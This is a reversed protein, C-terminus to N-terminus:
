IRIRTGEFLPKKNSAPILIKEDACIGEVAAENESRALVTLTKFRARSGNEVWVGTKRNRTVLVGLPIKLVNELTRLAIRVEAQENLYFSEPTKAFAVNVIREQTVPDSVAEIRAVYGELPQEQRSRLIIKAKQGVRIEGSIREDIYASVWVTEPDVVTLVSQSPLLAQGTEADKSIM